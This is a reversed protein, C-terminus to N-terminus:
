HLSPTPPGALLQSRLMDVKKSEPRRTLAIAIEEAVIPWHVVDFIGAAVLTDARIEIAAKAALLIPLRPATDHLAAALKLSVAASGLHGVVAADFREPNARCAAIAADANNFGIPEYGLAALTEEDRLLRDNEVVVLMITEGSGTPLKVTAPMSMSTAPARPLWIEFRSGEGPKSRVNLAGRHERVIERVTALGLGNGSPRTTFFPEFIRGLTTEDMGEGTDTVVICVYHGPAIEDHSLSRREAVHHIEAALEIRGGHPMANASNRCLNLVVQQLQSQEGFVIAAVPLQCIVIEINAPLSVDLLAAAEATVASLSLPERNADRRRRGFLLIQDILDRARDAGRRIGSLNHALKANSGINEEMVESHGIIGGLINNFNHAIGSTFVGIREMRRAQQLRSELRVREAEMAHREVAQVITDLAMRLLALESDRSIPSCRGVADFGLTVTGGDSEIGTVCAWGGLGFELRLNKGEKGPILRVCPFLLVGDPSGIRAALEPAREPWDPPPEAGPRHWLHLRPAAGSMVLYARDSDTFAAMEALARDIEADLMDPRADILRMSIGSVIHEFAARRQLADQHAKLRVGLYFLFVVLALSTAYLLSRFGRASARTEVQKALIVKRLADEDHKLPLRRMSRLTNDMSPLIQDLLRGHALLAQVSNGLGDQSAQRDLESLRDEVDRVAASSTDLTLNLIAAAAASIAPDLESLSPQVSFRGFFALSNHLLANDTKFHEVMEEQSDVSSVLQAIGTTSESDFDCIDSLRQLSERLANVEHVLPDYNRLMGARATFIDRSLANETMGFQNLEALAHDFTEADPNVASWSFWTLLLALAVVTTVAPALRM